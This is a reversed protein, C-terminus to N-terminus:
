SSSLMISGLAFFYEIPLTTGASVYLVGSLYLSNLGDITSSVGYYLFEPLISSYVGILILM